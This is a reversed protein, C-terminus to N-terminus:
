YRRGRYGEEYLWRQGRGNPPGPRRRAARVASRYGAEYGHRFGRRYPPRPGVRSRYGHDAQRYRGDNWFGFRRHRRLDREAERRGHGYGRDYGVRYANRAHRQDYGRGGHGLAVRVSLTPGAGADSPAGLLGFGVLLGAAMWTRTM